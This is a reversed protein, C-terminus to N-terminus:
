PLGLSAKIAAVSLDKVIDATMKGLFPKWHRPNTAIAALIRDRQTEVIASPNPVDPDPKELMWYTTASFPTGRSLEPVSLLLNAKMSYLFVPVRRNETENHKAVDRAILFGRLDWLSRFERQWRTELDEVPTKWIADYISLLQEAHADTTVATRPFFIDTVVADVPYGADLARKFYRRDSFTIVLFHDCHQDAFWERKAREDDVMWIIRHGSQRALKTLAKTKGNLDSLPVTTRDPLTFSGADLGFDSARYRM